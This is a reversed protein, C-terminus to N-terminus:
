LGISIYKVELYEEIGHHGGERGLGSEKMGGFPAQAASPVGDNWGIIGYELGEAVKVGKSLNETYVYAALGLEINNALHIAEDIEEFKQVPAVPGFTEEKMIDMNSQVNKLVTPSYFYGKDSDGKGGTVITAGKAVADSVQAQVKKYGSANIMPGIDIGEELGNGVKLDSAAKAFREVFQDYIGSQVYIRNACICTQGANRFKSAIAGQVAKDLNADDLVIFPAHGGLELSLKTVNQAAKEMLEKGIETSGTFTVKRVKPNSMIEESIESAKGTVLNVVGKPIGAKECLEVIKIATLPTASAPKIVITCGSALAPGLKRTIMAAPFNWPTIAAVVGIPQKLVVMRQNNRAAPITEGYIRKGEEAYWEIFSAAYRVEGVSESLPKGMELTMIKALEEEHDQMLTFLKRLYHSREAATLSSWHPFAAAAANIAEKTEQKGAKPVTAIEELTAPNIVTLSELNEGIWNGDVYIRQKMQQKIM